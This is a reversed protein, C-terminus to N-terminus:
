GEAVELPVTVGFIAGMEKLALELRRNIDRDQAPSDSVVLIRTVPPEEVVTGAWTRAGDRAESHERDLLVQIPAFRDSEPLTISYSYAWLAKLPPARGKNIM